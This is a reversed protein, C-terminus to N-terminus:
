HLGILKKYDGASLLRAADAPDDLEIHVMWGKGYPDKNVLDPSSVLSENVAVIKGSLPAYLDSVTKVAEVSGFPKMKETRTGPRPLDLFVIDGLEGQAYDTIGVIGLTGEVKVWEHEKTYKRDDPTM